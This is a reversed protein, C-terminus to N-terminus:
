ENDEEFDEEFNDEVEEEENDNIEEDEIEEENDSQVTVMPIFDKQYAEKLTLIENSKFIEDDFENNEDEVEDENERKPPLTFFSIKGSNWDNLIIKAADELNEEGGQKIIKIVRKSNEEKKHL